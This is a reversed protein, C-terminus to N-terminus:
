GGCVMMADGYSYFRYRERVAHAYAERLREEGAFAAALLLLTTRPLHFNTVLADVAQFRYPPLIYKRTWGGAGAIGGAHADAMSELARVTTTGVAVIRGGAERAARMAAASADSVTFWEEDMRHRRPDDSTIPRFTGPGVHLTVNVRRIGSAELSALLPESFHLGATPAAVAGDERAYVTQYREVDEPTPAHHIYPPLPVEGHARLTEDLSGHEVRVVREGQEGEAIVGLVLEGAETVLQTGRRALKAPRALVRWSQGSSGGADPRVFLLEVRAGTPRRVMLRAPRVRTENVVLADGPELWRGIDRFRADTLRGSARDVVLLRADERKAAPHQAILEPPLEYDLLQRLRRADETPADSGGTAGTRPAPSDGQTNAV